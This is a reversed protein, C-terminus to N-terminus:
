IGEIDHVIDVPGPQEECPDDGEDEEGNDVKEYFLFQLIREKVLLALSCVQFVCLVGDLSQHGYDYKVQNTIYGPINQNHKLFCNSM